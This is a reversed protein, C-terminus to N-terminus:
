RLAMCYVLSSHIAYSILGPTMKGEPKVLNGWADLPANISLTHLVTTAILFLSDEAFHRGPCGRFIISRKSHNPCDFLLM